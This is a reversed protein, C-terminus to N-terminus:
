KKRRSNSETSSSSSTSSSVSVTPAIFLVGTAAILVKRQGVDIKSNVPVYNNFKGGFVNIEEEFAARVETPADQVAEILNDAQEDSLSSVEVAEFIKTAEDSTVSQLVAPSTALLTAEEASVGKEIISEVAAHIESQPLTGIAM